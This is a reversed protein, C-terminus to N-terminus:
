PLLLQLVRPLTHSSSLIIFHNRSPIDYKPPLLLLVLVRHWYIIYFSNRHLFQKRWKMRKKGERRKMGYDRWVILRERIESNKEEGGWAEEDEDWKRALSCVITLVSIVLWSSPIRAISPCPFIFHHHSSLFHITVFLPSSEESQEPCWSLARVTALSDQRTKSRLSFFLFRFSVSSGRFGRESSVEAEERKREM